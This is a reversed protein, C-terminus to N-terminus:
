NVSIRVTGTNLPRYFNTGDDSLTVWISYEGKEKFTTSGNINVEEDPFLIKGNVCNFMINQSSNFCIFPLIKKKTGQNKITATFNVEEDKEAYEKNSNIQGIEIINTNPSSIPIASAHKENLDSSIIGTSTILPSVSNIKNNFLNAQNGLILNAQYATGLFLGLMLFASPVFLFKWTKILAASIRM